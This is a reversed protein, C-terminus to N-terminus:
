EIEIPYPIGPAPELIPFHFEAYVHCRLVHQYLLHIDHTSSSFYARCSVDIISFNVAIVFNWIRFHYLYIVM